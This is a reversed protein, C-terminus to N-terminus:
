PRRAAIIAVLQRHQEAQQQKAPVIQRRNDQAGSEVIRDREDIQLAYSAPESELPHRGDAYSETVGSAGDQAALLRHDELQRRAAAGAHLAGDWAEGNADIIHVRQAIWRGETRAEGFEFSRHRYVASYTHQVMSMFIDAQPFIQHIEPAAYSYAAAADDRSFAQDQSRIVDRRPPSTTRPAPRAHRPRFALRSAFFRHAHHPEM